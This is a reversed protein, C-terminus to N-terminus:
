AGKGELDEEPDLDQIQDGKKKNRILKTHTKGVAKTTCSDNQQDLKLTLIPWCISANKQTNMSPPAGRLSWSRYRSRKEYNIYNIILMLINWHNTVIVLIIFFYICGMLSDPVSNSFQLSLHPYAYLSHADIYLYPLQIKRVIFNKFITM